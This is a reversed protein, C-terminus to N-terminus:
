RVAGNRNTLAYLSRANGSLVPDMVVDPLAKLITETSELHRHPYDSSFLLLEDFGLRGLVSPLREVPCDLPQLTLRVHEHVYESPPRRVWPIERRLGRWEKDLRWLFAPLWAFGAEALVVKLNPFRDFVGEVILSMLQTQFVDATGAYEEIYYSPWGTGTPPNGPTGGAHLAVALGHRSAAEFIPRYRLVGYPQASRVPLMVQVFGPHPSVRDIEPAALEPHATPVVISAVVRPEPELWHEVQWDNIAAAIAAALYPDHIADVPYTCMLVAREIGDTALVAQRIHRIETAPAAGPRLATPAAPPESTVYPGSFDSTAVYEQWHSDLYPVLVEVSSVTNHVDCDIASSLM